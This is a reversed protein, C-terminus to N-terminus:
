FICKTNRKKYSILENLCNQNYKNPFNIKCGYEMLIKKSEHYDFKEAIFIPRKNFCGNPNAGHSLLLELIKPNKVAAYVPTIYRDNYLNVDVDYNELIYKIIHIEEKKIYHLLLTDGIPLRDNISTLKHFQILDM